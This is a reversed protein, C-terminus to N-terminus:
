RVQMATQKVSLLYYEAVAAAYCFLQASEVGCAHVLRIAGLAEQAVHNAQAISTQVKKANEHLWDAYFKGIISCVPIIGLAVCALRWESYLM